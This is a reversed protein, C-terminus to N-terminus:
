RCVLCRRIQRDPLHFENQLTRYIRSRQTDTLRYVSTAGTGPLLERDILRCVDLDQMRSRSFNRANENNLLEAISKDDLGPEVDALTIPKGTGDKLQEQLWTEDTLRNMQYVFNRPSVYFQELRRIEM